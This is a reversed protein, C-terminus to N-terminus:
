KVSYSIPWRVNTARQHCQTHNEISHFLFNIWIRIKWFTLLIKGSSTFEFTMITCFFLSKRSKFDPLSESSCVGYAPFKSPALGYKTDTPPTPFTFTIGATTRWQMVCTGTRTPQWTGRTSNNSTWNPQTKMWWKLLRGPKCHRVLVVTHIM